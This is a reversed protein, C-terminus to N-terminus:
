QASKPLLEKYDLSSNVLFTQSQTFFPVVAFFKGLAFIRSFTTTHRHQKGINNPHFVSMDYEVFCREEDM